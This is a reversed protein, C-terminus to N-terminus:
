AHSWLRHAANLQSSIQEILQFLRNMDQEILLLWHQLEANGRLMHLRHVALNFLNGIQRLEKRMLLMDALFDDLSQNRSLINVPM